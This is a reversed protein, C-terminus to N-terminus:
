IIKFQYVGSDSTNGLSDKTIIRWYYITNSAVSVILTNDNIDNAYIVPASDTGFYVDYATIDNDLDNATWKLIVSSVGSIEEAMAPSEIIATFPAYSLVGEGSNYFQWIDSQATELAANSESIVYWQYATARDIVVAIETNTTKHVTQIGTLINKLTLSYSDTYDSVKWEFLVTSETPTVNSGENCLSNEFPFVLTAATPKQLQPEESKSCGFILIVFCM